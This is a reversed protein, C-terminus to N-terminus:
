QSVPTSNQSTYMAESAGNSIIRELWRQELIVPGSLYPEGSYTPGFSIIQNKLLISQNLSELIALRQNADRGAQIFLYTLGTPLFGKFHKGIIGGADILQNEGKEVREMFLTHLMHPRIHPALSLALLLREQESLNWESLLQHLESSESSIKPPLDEPVPQAPPAGGGRFLSKGFLQGFRNKIKRELWGIEDVLSQNNETLTSQM